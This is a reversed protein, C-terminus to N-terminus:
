PVSITIDQDVTAYKEAVCDSAAMDLCFKFAHEGVPINLYWIYKGPPIPATGMLTSNRFAYIPDSLNNRITVKYATRASTPTDPPPMTPVIPPVNTFTPPPPLPPPETPPLPQTPAPTVPTATLTSTFTATLTPTSTALYADMFASYAWGGAAICIVAAVAVIALVPILWAPRRRKPEAMSSTPPPVMTQQPWGGSGPVVQTGPLPANQPYPMAATPPIVVAAAPAAQNLVQTGPVSKRGGIRDPVNGPSTGLVACAIELMEQTNQYRQKPDKALATQIAGSLGSPLNPNFSAADPPAQNIHADGLAQAAASNYEQSGSPIRLFPHVGTLFEFTLIGLAYIDTSPYVREGRLQEPAQCLPLDFVGTRTMPKDIQRAFGYNALMVSGDRTAQIQAPSVTSHVFGYSHVVELAAALAKLYILADEPLMPKGARQRLIQALSPGEIFREIMFSIGQDDYVGYFPIIGPHVASQLTLNDQQFCLVSPDRKLPDEFVRISLSLNRKLDLGRYRSYFEGHQIVEDVRFRSLFIKGSIPEM